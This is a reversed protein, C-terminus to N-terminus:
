TQKWAPKWCYSGLCILGGMTLSQYIYCFFLCTEQIALIDGLQCPSVLSWDYPLNTRQVISKLHGLAIPVQGRWRLLNIKNKAWHWLGFFFLFFFCILQILQVGLHWVRWHKGQRKHKWSPLIPSGRDLYVFIHTAPLRGKRYKLATRM